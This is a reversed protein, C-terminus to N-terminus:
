HRGSIRRMERLIAKATRREGLQNVAAVAARYEYDFREYYDPVQHRTFVPVPFCRCHNHAQFDASAESRYTAGRSATMACFACCNASAGRYWRAARPDRDVNAILTERDAAVVLRQLAGGARSLALETGGRRLIPASAWGANSAVQASTVPTRVVPVYRGPVESRRLELYWDAAAGAVMRGYTQVLEDIERTLALSLRQRDDLPLERWREVLDAQAVAVIDAVETRHVDLPPM